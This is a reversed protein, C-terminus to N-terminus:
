RGRRKEGATKTKPKQARRLMAKLAESVKRADEVSLWDPHDCPVMRKIFAALAQVSGNAVIGKRSLEGWQAHVHRVHAHPSPKFKGSTAVFGLREFEVMVQDLQAPTMDKSSSLGTLRTLIARYDEDGLGLQKKAVHLKALAKTRAASHIIM